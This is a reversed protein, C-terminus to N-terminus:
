FHFRRHAIQYRAGLGFYIETENNDIEPMQINRMIVQFDFFLNHRFQYSFLFDGLLGREEIGQGTSNSYESEVTNRSTERFIDSGWHSGDADVGRNWFYAHMTLSMRPHPRYRLIGVIENFNAGLPHALPQNYHTFSTATDNHTFMYPRVYNYELQMDLNPINFFNIYKAGLQFAYKNAWWGEGSTLEGYNFEDLALQGYVSFRQLFDTRFEMGVRVKDPSGMDHEIARYFIVPNLYQLDYGNRGHFMVSEFLGIELWHVPQFFLYHAALYKRDLLRDGSRRYTSIMDAYLNQYRFKWFRSVMRLHFYQNAHDSLFMSRHGNGIFNKGHGFFVDIHDFLNFHIHASPSMFDVGTRKFGKYFGEGPVAQGSSIKRRVYNPARMQNDTIFSYIGVKDSLRARLEFGRTNVFLNENTGGTKFYHAYNLVPTIKFFYPDEDVTFLADPRVYFTNFIPTISLVTTDPFYDNNETLQHYLWFKDANSLAQENELLFALQGTLQERNLPRLSNHLVPIDKKYMIQWRDYLHYLDQNYTLYTSQANTYFISSITFLILFLLKPM